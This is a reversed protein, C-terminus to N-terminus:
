TEVTERDMDLLVGRLKGYQGQAAEIRYQKMQPNHQELYELGLGLRKLVYDLRKILDERHGRMRIGGFEERISTVMEDLGGICLDDWESWVLLFYSILIEFNGLGRVHRVTDLTTGRSRGLCVPPLSPRKKLWAWIEIPVHPRLSYISSIQLLTDVVDQSVDETDPVALAAAAWRYVMHEEDVKSEWDLHSSAVTILWDLLPSSPKGFLTTISSGSLIPDIFLCSKSAKAVRFITDVMGNQGGQELFIAYSLLACVSERKSLITVADGAKTM